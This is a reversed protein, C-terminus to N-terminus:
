SGGQMNEAMASRDQDYTWMGLTLERKCRHVGLTQEVDKRSSSGTKQSRAARRTLGDGQVAYGDRLLWGGSGTKSSCLHVDVM